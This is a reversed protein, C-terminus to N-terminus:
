KSINGFPHPEVNSLSASSARALKELLNRDAAIPDIWGSRLEPRLSETRDAFAFGAASSRNKV